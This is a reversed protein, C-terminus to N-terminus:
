RNLIDRNESCSLGNLLRSRQSTNGAKEYKQYLFEWDESNGVQMAGCFVPSELNPTIDSKNNAKWARVQHLSHTRCEQHGIKCLWNLVNIRNLKVLHQDYPSESVGIHNYAGSM